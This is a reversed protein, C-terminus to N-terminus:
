RVSQRAPHTGAPTRGQYPFCPLGRVGLGEIALVHGAHPQRALAAEDLGERATTVFLTAGDAGGFACSTPRDVPLTVSAKLTGDPRYQNVAAGGWLAVGSAAKNM